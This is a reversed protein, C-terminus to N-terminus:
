FHSAAVRLHQLTVTRLHSLRGRKAGRGPKGASQMRSPSFRGLALLPRLQLRLNYCPPLRKRYHHPPQRQQQQQLLHRWQRPHLGLQWFPNSYNAPRSPPPPPLQLYQQQQSRRSSESCTQVGPGRSKWGKRMPESPLGNKQQLQQLGVCYPSSCGEQGCTWPLNLGLVLRCGGTSCALPRKSSSYSSSSCKRSSSSISSIKITVSNFLMM